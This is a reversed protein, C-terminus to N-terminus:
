GVDDNVKPRSHKERVQDLINIDFPWVSIHCAILEAQLNDM